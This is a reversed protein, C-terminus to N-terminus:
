QIFLRASHIGGVTAIDGLVHLFNGERLGLVPPKDPLMHYEKIRTERTEGMHRSDVPADIYHPNINFPVLGLADFSVCHVIPMDNTTCINATAM